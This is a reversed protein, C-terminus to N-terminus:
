ATAIEPQLGVAQALRDLRRVVSEGTFDGRDQALRLVLRGPQTTLSTGELLEPVGACLTYALRLALGLIEARRFWDNDLLRRAPQLFPQDLEAEYRMALTLALFARTPHDFAMGPQRLVRLFTQEARYEPHDFSGNDSMWCASARLRKQRPTERGSTPHGPLAMESLGETWAILAPPLDANRGLRTAMDRSAAELPDQSMVEPAVHRMFWGERLGDVCFVVREPAAKRLLRRLVIAAYPLDELRKRPAGPLRELARKSAGIIWGTMERAEDARLEYQHVINLPYFTRAIQLRALARFAGGVLYLTRGNGEKLWSVETLDQEVLSRAKELDGGARDSLRIVGLKLTRAHHKRGDALRILELSGGGIDAVVGDADPLGCLVGTASYDAEEEGSLIRIPVGPMIRRLEEVFEPGNSADRVAATALVEFPDAGMSQAVAYFRRMLVFAQSLGDPNLKGTQELGRGLRVVAKENFITVPNRAKGEFVVLRVSNSGLDVVAARQPRPPGNSMAPDPRAFADM